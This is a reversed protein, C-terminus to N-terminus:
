PLIGHDPQREAAPSSSLYQNYFNPDDVIIRNGSKTTIENQAWGPLEAKSQVPNDQRLITGPAAHDVSSQVPNYQRLVTGPAAHVTTHGTIASARGMFMDNTNDGGMAALGQIREATRDLLVSQQVPNDQRLVTGAAPHVTTQTSAGSGILSKGVVGAAGALAIAACAALSVMLVKPVASGAYTRRIEM